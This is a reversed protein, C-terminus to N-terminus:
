IRRMSKFQEFRVVEALIDDHKKLTERIQTSENAAWVAFESLMTMIVEAEKTTAPSLRAAKDERLAAVDQIREILVALDAKVKGVHDLLQLSGSKIDVTRTDNGAGMLVPSVENVKIKKLVRIRQGDQDRTEFEIEPLSYSWEQLEGINKVTLYTEKGAITDLFFEGEMTGGEQGDYIRGKGVPLADVGSGWSAHGYGAIIIQQDGFAGPLTLDGQKDIENYKAFMATVKGSTDDFKMRTLSFTKTATMTKGDKNVAAEFSGKRSDCHARASAETWVKKPYRLAQIESKGSKIGYIVDICKGDHKEACNDRRIKDYKGPDNLRCSHESPYPV